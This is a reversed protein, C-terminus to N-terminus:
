YIPNLEADFLMNYVIVESKSVVRTGDEM